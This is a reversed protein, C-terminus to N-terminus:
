RVVESSNTRLEELLKFHKEKLKDKDIENYNELIDKIINTDITQTNNSIVVEIIQSIAYFLDVFIQNIKIEQFDQSNANRFRSPYNSTISLVAKVNHGDYLIPISISSVYNLSDNRDANKVKPLDNNINDFVFDRIDPNIKIQRVTYCIHSTENIDWIRGKKKNIIEPKFSIFDMYEETQPCFYYLAITLHEQYDVYFENLIDFIEKLTNHMATKITIYDNQGSLCSQLNNITRHLTVVISSIQQLKKDNKENNAKINSLEYVLDKFQIIDEDLFKNDTNILNIRNKTFGYFLGLVSLLAIKYALNPFSFCGAIAIIITIGDCIREDWNKSKTIGLRYNKLDKSEKM